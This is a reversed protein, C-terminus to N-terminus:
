RVWKYGGEAWTERLRFSIPKQIRPILAFAVPRSPDEGCSRIRSLCLLVVLSDGEDLIAEFYIQPCHMSQHGPSAVLLTKSSFDLAPPEPRIEAIRMLAWVAAWEEANVVPRYLPAKSGSDPAQTPHIVEFPVLTHPNISSGPCVSSVAMLTFFDVAIIATVMSTHQDRMM